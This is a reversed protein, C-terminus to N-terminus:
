TITQERAITLHLPLLYEVQKDLLCPFIVNFIVVFVLYGSQRSEIATM